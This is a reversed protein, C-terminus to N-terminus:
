ILSPINLGLGTHLGSELGASLIWVIGILVVLGLSWVTRGCVDRTAREHRERAQKAGWNWTDPSMELDRLPLSLCRRWLLSVSQQAGAM